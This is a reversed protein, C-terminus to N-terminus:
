EGPPLYASHLIDDATEGGMFAAVSFFDVTQRPQSSLWFLDDKKKLDRDWKTQVLQFTFLVQPV